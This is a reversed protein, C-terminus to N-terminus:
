DPWPRHRATFREAFTPDRRAVDIAADPDPKHFISAHTPDYEAGLEVDQSAYFDATEVIARWRWPNTANPLAAVRLPASGQYIRSEAVAVARGHLVARGCNYLLVFAIACWASARGHRGPKAGGIESGVLRALFPAAM